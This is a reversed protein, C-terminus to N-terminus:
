RATVTWRDAPRRPAGAVIDVAPPLGVPAVPQQDIMLMAPGRAAVRDPRDPGETKAEDLVTQGLAQYADSQHRPVLGESRALQYFGVYETFTM